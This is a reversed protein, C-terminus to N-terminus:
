LKLGKAIGLNWSKFELTLALFVKLQPQSTICAEGCPHNTQCRYSRYLMSLDLSGVLYAVSAVPHSVALMSFQYLKLIYVKALSKENVGTILNEIAERIELQMRSQMGAAEM